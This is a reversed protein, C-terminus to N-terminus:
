CSYSIKDLMLKISKHSLTLNDFCNVILRFDIGTLLINKIIMYRFTDAHQYNDISKHVINQVLKSKTVISKDRFLRLGKFINFIFVIYIM